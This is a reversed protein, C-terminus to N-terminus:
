RRAHRRTRPQNALARALVSAHLIDATRNSQTLNPLLRDAM